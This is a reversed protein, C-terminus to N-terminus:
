CSDLAVPFNYEPFNAEMKPRLSDIQKNYNELMRMQINEDNTNGGGAIYDKVSKLQAKAVEILEKEGSEIAFKLGEEAEKKKDENTYGAQGKMTKLREEAQKKSLIAQTYSVLNNNLETIAEVRRDVHLNTDTEYMINRTLTIKIPKLVNTPIKKTSKGSSEHLVIAGGIFVLSGNKCLEVFGTYNSCKGARAEKEQKPLNKEYQAALKPNQKRMDEVLKDITNKILFQIPLLKFRPYSSNVRLINNIDGNDRRLEIRFLGSILEINQLKQMTVTSKSNKKITDAVQSPVMFAPAPNTTKESLSIKLESQPFITIRTYGNSESDDNSRLNLVYSAKETGLIDGDKLLFTSDELSESIAMKQAGRKVYVKGLVSFLLGYTSTHHVASHFSFGNRKLLEVKKAFAPEYHQEILKGNIHTSLLIPPNIKFEEVIRNGEDLEKYKEGQQKGLEKSKEIEKSYDEKKQSAIKKEADKRLKMLKAALEPSIKNKAEEIKKEPKKTKM